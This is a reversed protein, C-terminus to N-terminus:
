NNTDVIIPADIGKTNSKSNSSETVAKPNPEESSSFAVFIGATAYGTASPVFMLTLLYYWWKQKTKIGYVIILLTVVGMSALAAGVAKNAREEHTM